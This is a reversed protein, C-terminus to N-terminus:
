VISADSDLSLEAVLHHTTIADWSWERGEKKQSKAGM